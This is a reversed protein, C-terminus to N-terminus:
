FSEYIGTSYTDSSDYIAKSGKTALKHKASTSHPNRVQDPDSSVYPIRQRKQKKCEVSSGSPTLLFM